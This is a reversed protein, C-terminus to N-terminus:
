ARAARRVRLGAEGAVGVRREARAPRVRGADYLKLLEAAVCLPEIVACFPAPSDLAPTPKVACDSAAAGVLETVQLAAAHTAPQYVLLGTANAILALSGPM